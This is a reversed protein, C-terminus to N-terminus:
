KEDKLTKSHEVLVWELYHKFNKKKKVALIQLNELVNDGEPIYINKIM